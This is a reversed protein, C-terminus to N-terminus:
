KCNKNFYCNETEYNELNTGMTLDTIDKVVMEAVQWAMEEEVRSVNRQMWKKMIKSIKSENNLDPDPEIDRQFRGLQDIRGFSLGSRKRRNWISDPDLKTLFQKKSSDMCYENVSSTPSHDMISSSSRIMDSLMHVYHQSSLFPILYNKRLFALVINTAPVFCDAHPGKTEDCIAEEVSCRINDSFGLPCTALLSLYKEYISIADNLIQEYDAENNGPSNQILQNFNTAALWFEVVNSCGEIELFQMFYSLTTKHGLIDGLTVSRSTLLDVQYRFFWENRLFEIWYETLMGYILPILSNSLDIFNTDENIKDNEPIIKARIDVRLGFLINQILDISNLSNNNGNDEYEKEIHNRHAGLSQRYKSSKNISRKDTHNLLEYLRLIDVAMKSELFYKFYIYLTKNEHIDELSNPNLRFKELPIIDSNNFDFSKLPGDYRPDLTSVDLNKKPSNVRGQEQIKKWLNLM